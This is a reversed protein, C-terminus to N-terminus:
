GRSVTAITAMLAESAQIDDSSGTPSVPPVAFLVVVWEAVSLLFNRLAVPCRRPEGRPRPLGDNGTSLSEACWSSVSVGTM